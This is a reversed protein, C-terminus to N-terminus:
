VKDVMSGHLKIEDICLAFCDNAKPANEGAVRKATEKMWYAGIFEIRGGQYKKTLLWVTKEDIRQYQTM